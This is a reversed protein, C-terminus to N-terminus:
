VTFYTLSFRITDNASLGAIDVTSLGSNDITEYFLLTSVSSNVSTPEVTIYDATYDIGSFTVAGIAASAAKKAFPIGSLKIYGAGGGTISSAMPIQATITVKNGIKTYNCVQTGTEYTGATTSGTVTATWTGEEYDDLTNADASAVQTAPFKVAPTNVVGTTTLDNDNLDLPIGFNVGVVDGDEPILYYIGDTDLQWQVYRGTGASTNQGWHRFPYNQGTWVQGLELLGGTVPYIVINGGTTQIFTGKSSKLYGNRFQDFFIEMTDDGEVARRSVIHKKGDADDAMDTDGFFVADGQADPQLKLIGASNYFAPADVVDGSNLPSLVTGTRDWFGVTGGIKWVADGTGTDKTLVYENTAGSVATLANIATQATSQGTGGHSIAVDTSEWVGTAITGTETIASQLFHEGAVFDSFGDHYAGGAYAIDGDTVATDFQAKTGTIGVITTQDGTNTGSLNNGTINGSASIVDFSQTGTWTNEIDLDIGLPSSVTGLGLLTTDSSVSTLGSGQPSSTQSSRSGTLTRVETITWNGGIYRIIIQNTFVFEPTLNQLNGLSISNVDLDRQATLSASESQGQVFIYRLAQSNADAALPLCGVWISMYYNNSMLTQGWTGSFENWYPQSGSLPVIDAEARDFEVTGSGSLYTNTYPGDDALLPSITELDEDFIETAEVSPRRNTATTSDVVYDQLAGGSQRYTGDLRHEQRHTQWQMLGHCERQYVWTTNTNDYFSIAILLNQYFDDEDLTAVDAWEVTTGDYMLFYATNTPTDHAPSTWGSTIENIKKGVYYANVTGTLTVTRTSNDGTIIVNEPETFGTPEKQLKFNKLAKDIKINM